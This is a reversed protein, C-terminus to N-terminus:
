KSVVTFGFKEFIAKAGSGSLYKLYKEAEASVRTGAVVAAPYVIKANIEDPANAVVKVKTSILADTSYVMGVDVNGSEVYALVARVDTGIVYKPTVVDTIGLFDFAQQAYDGAPVSKPDGIAIKTVRAAALDKFDTLGLTSDNPVILVLKNILLNQRTGAIILNAKELADMQKAAASIFVDAPAGQEIQKQLTGSSAFNASITVNPNEHNYQTNVEKLADTMSAAASVNLTVAQVPAPSSTTQAPAMTTTQPAAPTTQPAATTTRPASPAQTTLNAPAATTTQVPATTKVESSCGALSLVLLVSIMLVFFVSIYRNRM